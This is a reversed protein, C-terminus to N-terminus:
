LNCVSQNPLKGPIRSIYIFLLSGQDNRPCGLRGDRSGFGRAPLPGLSSSNKVPYGPALITLSQFRRIEALSVSGLVTSRKRGGRCPYQRPRLSDREEVSPVLGEGDGLPIRLRSQGVHRFHTVQVLGGGGLSGVPGIPTSFEAPGGQNRTENPSDAGKWPM